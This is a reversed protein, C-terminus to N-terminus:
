SAFGPCACGQPRLREVRSAACQNQQLNLLSPGKWILLGVMVVVIAVMGIILWLKYKAGGATAIIEVEETRKERFGPDTIRRKADELHEIFAAYSEYRDEPYRAMAKSVAYATQDSIDPAFAKVSIVSGSLHMMAVPTKSRRGRVASPGVDCPFGNRGLSYLDSKFTEAERELKKPPSPLLRAGSKAM